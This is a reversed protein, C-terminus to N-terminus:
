NPGAPKFSIGARRPEAVQGTPQARSRHLCSWRTRLAAAPVSGVDTSAPGASPVRQTPLVFLVIIMWLLQVSGAFALLAGGSDYDGDRVGILAATPTCWIALGTTMLVSYGVVQVIRGTLAKDASDYGSNDDALARISSVLRVTLVVMAPFIWIIHHVWSVPSVLVGVLGALTLGALEDGGIRARRVSTM